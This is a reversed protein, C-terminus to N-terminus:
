TRIPKTVTTWDSVLLYDIHTLTRQQLNVYSKNRGAVLFLLPYSLQKATTSLVELLYRQEKTKWM